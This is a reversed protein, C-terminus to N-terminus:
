TLLSALIEGANEADERSIDLHTLLRARRPGVAGIRLGKEAASTVLGPADPVDIVVINTPVSEPDLGCLEAILRANEHDEAMRDVHHDLA